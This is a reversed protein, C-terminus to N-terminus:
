NLLTLFQRLISTSIFMGELVDELTIIGLPMIAPDLGQIQLFDQANEKSLVADAPMAQELPGQGGRAGEVAINGMELDDGSSGSKNRKHRKHAERRKRAWGTIGGGTSNGEGKDDEGEDSVDEVKVDTGWKSNKKTASDEEDSETVEDSSSSDGRVAGMLRQTLNKKVVKKVSEANELSLRSVMAMHSRGEQFRDLIGLLSENQPVFNVKNLRM